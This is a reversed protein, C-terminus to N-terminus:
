YSRLATLDAALRDLRLWGLPTCRVRFEEDPTTSAGVEEIWGAAIWPHVTTRESPRVLLGDRTRLGLYVTEAVRNERTLREDGGLPDGGADVTQQWAAYAETNWRRVTGDFGHASPGVALYPVSRWSASNHVARHGARAFTSVEYHEFGAAALRRQIDEM